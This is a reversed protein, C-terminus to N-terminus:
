HGDLLLVQGSARWLQASQQAQPAAFGVLEIEWLVRSLKTDKKPAIFGRGARM